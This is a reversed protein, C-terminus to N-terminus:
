MPRVEEYNCIEHILPNKLKVFILTYQLVSFYGLFASSEPTMANSMDPCITFSSIQIEFVLKSKHIGLM